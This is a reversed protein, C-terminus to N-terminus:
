AVFAADDVTMGYAARQAAWANWSREHAQRIMQAKSM